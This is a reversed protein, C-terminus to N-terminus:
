LSSGYFILIYKNVIDRTFYLEVPLVFMKILKEM